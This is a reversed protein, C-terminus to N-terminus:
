RGASVERYEGTTGSGDARMRSTRARGVQGGHTRSFLAGDDAAFPPGGGGHHNRGLGRVRCTGHGSSAALRSLPIREPRSRLHSFAVGDAVDEPKTPDIHNRERTPFVYHEPSAAGLVEARKRLRGPRSL